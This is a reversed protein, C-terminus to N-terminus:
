MFLNLIRVVFVLSITASEVIKIINRDQPRYWTAREWHLKM